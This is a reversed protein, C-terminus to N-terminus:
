LLRSALFESCSQEMFITIVGPSFCLPLIEKNNVVSTKHCNEVLYFVQEREDVVVKWSCARLASNTMRLRFIFIIAGNRIVEAFV